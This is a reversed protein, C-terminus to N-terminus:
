AALDLLMQMSEALSSSVTSSGAPNMVVSYQSSIRIVKVPNLVQIMFGEEQEHATLQWDSETIIPIHSVSALMGSMRERLGTIEFRENKQSPIGLWYSVRISPLEVIFGVDSLVHMKGKKLWRVCSRGNPAVSSLASLHAMAYYELQDVDEGLFRIHVSQYSNRYCLACLILLVPVAGLVLALNPRTAVAIGVSTVSYALVAFWAVDNIDDMRDNNDKDIDVYTWEFLRSIGERHMDVVSEKWESGLTSPDLFRLRARTRAGLSSYQRTAALGVLAEVIILILAGELTGSVPYLFFLVVSYAAFVPISILSVTVMHRRIAWLDLMLFQRPPEEPTSM